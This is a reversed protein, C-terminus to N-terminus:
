GAGTNWDGSRSHPDLVDRLGDAVFHFALLTLFLISGPFLILHPFSRMARFGENALTGWSSLPPELGLGIFSLFSEAMIATPIQFTLSVLIPGWLNPLIHRVVIRSQPAGLARASEVYPTERAQLVQARVLRAQSVWATSVLALLIGFLGRGALIGILIALLISPLIAVLDALRMLLGDIWGGKWGAIAGFFTGFVLSGLAVLLGVSLSTRAGYIIRTYLDRGLMDTGMWHASSPPQLRETISQEEYSQPTVLPAAVSLGTMFALFALGARAAAGMGRSARFFSRSTEILRTSLPTTSM